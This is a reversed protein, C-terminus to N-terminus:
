QPAAAIASTGLDWYGLGYHFRMRLMDKIMNLTAKVVSLKSGPVETWQVDVSKISLKNMQCRYLLEVDFAWRELRQGGFAIRAADRSFLKFGCQTDAVGKVGGVNVVVWNFVRSVFSRIAGRREAASKTRLHLRSGVVVDANSKAIEEELKEIDSFVTAADADAMLIYRGRSHLAGARVAGGKGRNKVLELVRMREVSYQKVYGHAVQVTKDRSGDDVLIVEWSFAPQRTTRSELYRLTENLMAPLRVQENYAPVIVSLEVSPTDFISPFPLRTGSTANPDFYTKERDSHLDPAM